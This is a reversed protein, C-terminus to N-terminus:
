AYAELLNNYTYHKPLNNTIIEINYEGPRYKYDIDMTQFDQEMAIQMDPSIGFAEWFSVRAEDTIETVNDNLRERMISMGTRSTWPHDGFSGDGTRDLMKYFSYAVPVGDNLARGAKGIDNAWKRWSRVDTLPLLSVCDKAAALPFNRVMIVGKATRIPRTQCFDIKEMQSVPEEIVMYYGCSKAFEHFGDMKHLDCKEIIITCDDGNDLLRYRLDNM